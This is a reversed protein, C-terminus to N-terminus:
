IVEYYAGEACSRCLTMGGKQLDKADMVREGCLECMVIRAPKGPLENAGMRVRVPKLILFDETPLELLAGIRVRPDQPDLGMELAYQDLRSDLSESISVRVARAISKGADDMLCFTAAMKGYDRLKLTRRGFRTNTVVLVADSVCRDNEVIAIPDRHGRKGNFVDLGLWQMGAEALRLGLVQGLCTHGHFAACEELLAERKAKM